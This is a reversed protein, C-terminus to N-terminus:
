KAKWLSTSLVAEKRKALALIDKYDLNVYDQLLKNLDAM